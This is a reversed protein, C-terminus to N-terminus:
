SCRLLHLFFLSCMARFLSFYINRHESEKGWVCSHRLSPAYYTIEPVLGKRGSYGHLLQFSSISHPILWHRYSWLATEKGRLCAVKPCVFSVITDLMSQMRYNNLYPLPHKLWCLRSCDLFFLGLWDTNVTLLLYWASLQAVFISEWM